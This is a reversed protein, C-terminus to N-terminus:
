VQRRALTQPNGQMERMEQRLEEPTM